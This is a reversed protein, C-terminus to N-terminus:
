GQTSSRAQIYVFCLKRVVKSEVVVVVVVGGSNGGVHGVISVKNIEGCNLSM